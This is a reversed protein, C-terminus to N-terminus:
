LYLTQLLFHIIFPLKYFHLICFAFHLIEPCLRNYNTIRLEYHTILPAFGIINSRTYYCILYKRLRIMGIEDYIFCPHYAECCMLKIKFQWRLESLKSNQM